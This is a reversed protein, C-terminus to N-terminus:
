AGKGNAETGGLLRRIKGSADRLVVDLENLSKGLSTLDASISPRGATVQIRELVSARAFASVSRVGAELCAKTLAEYEDPSARFTIVKSNKKLVPMVTIGKSFRPALQCAQALTWANIKFINWRDSKAVGFNESHSLLLHGLLPVHFEAILVVSEILSGLPQDM